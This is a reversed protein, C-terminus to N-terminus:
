KLDKDTLAYPTGPNMTVGDPLPKLKPKPKRRKPLKVDRHLQRAQKIEASRYRVIVAYSAPIQERKMWRFVTVENVGLSDAMHAYWRKKGYIKVCARKFEEPTV